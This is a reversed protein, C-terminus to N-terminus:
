HILSSILVSIFFKRSNLSFVLFGGSSKLPLRVFPNIAIVAANFFWLFCLYIISSAVFVTSFCSYVLGLGSSWSIIFSLAPILSIFIFCVIFFFWHIYSSKRRSSLYAWLGKTQRVLHSSSHTWIFLCLISCCLVIVFIWFLIHFFKLFKHMIINSFLLFLLIEHDSWVLLILFFSCLEFLYM